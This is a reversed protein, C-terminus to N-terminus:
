RTVRPRMFRSPIIAEPRGEPIIHARRALVGDLDVRYVALTDLAPRGDAFRLERAGAAFRGEALTPAPVEVPDALDMRYVRVALAVTHAAEDIRRELEEETQAAPEGDTVFARYVIAAAIHLPLFLARRHLM